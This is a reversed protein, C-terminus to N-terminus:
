TFNSLHLFVLAVCFFLSDLSSCNRVPIAGSMILAALEKELEVVEVNFALAMRRMDVSVFPSFYQVLAKSRIDAYLQAVHPRLHLDILLDPLLKGLHALCSAYRSAHFDGVLERM